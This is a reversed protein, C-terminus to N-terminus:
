DTLPSHMKDANEWITKAAKLSITNGHAVFQMFIDGVPPIMCFMAFVSSYNKGNAGKYRLVFLAPNKKAQEQVESTLRQPILRHLFWMLNQEYAEIGGTPTRVVARPQAEENSELLPKELYFQYRYGGLEMAEFSINYAAGKGSNKVRLKGLRAGSHNPQEDFYINLLPQEQIENSRQTARTYIWVVVGTAAVAILNGIGLWEQLKM